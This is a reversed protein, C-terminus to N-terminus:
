INPNHFKNELNTDMLSMNEYHPALKCKSFGKWKIESAKILGLPDIWSVINPSFAYLNEGGWLRIPDQNM